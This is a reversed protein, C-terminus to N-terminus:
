RRGADGPPAPAITPRDAVGPTAPAVGQGAGETDRVLISVRRNRADFPDGPVRLETDAYGRVERVQEPRLGASEMVRRVANARDASLEWNTYGERSSYQRSDTHGEVLIGNRLPRLHRGITAFLRDAQATMTASGTGFFCAAASEQVELRLGDATMHIEVQGRLERLEPTAQLAREIDAAARELTQRDRTDRPPPPAGAQDPALGGGGELLSAGRGDAFAGPDRFYAAVAHRVATSQGVLWMVLFFAMLATMFDAYAVKWAGGHHAAHGARKRKIVIPAAPKM